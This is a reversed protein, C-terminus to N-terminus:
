PCRQTEGLLSPPSVLTKGKQAAQPWWRGGLRRQQFSPAPCIASPSLVTVSSCPNWVKLSDQRQWTSYYSMFSSFTCHNGKKKQIFSQHAQKTPLPPLCPDPILCHWSTRQEKPGHDDALHRSSHRCLSVAWSLWTGGRSSVRGATYCLRARRTYHLHGMFATPIYTDTHAKYVQLHTTDANPICAITM